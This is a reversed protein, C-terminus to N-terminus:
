KNETKRWTEKTPKRKRRPRYMEERAEQMPPRYPAGLIRCHMAWSLTMGESAKKPLPTPPITM